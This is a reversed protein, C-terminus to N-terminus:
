TAVKIKYGHLVDNNPSFFHKLELKLYFFGLKLFGLSGNVLLELLQFVYMPAV